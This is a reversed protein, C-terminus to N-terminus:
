VLRPDSFWGAANASALMPKIFRPLDGGKATTKMELPPKVLSSSSIGCKAVIITRAPVGSAAAGAGVLRPLLGAGRRLGRPPAGGYGM